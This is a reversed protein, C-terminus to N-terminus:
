KNNDNLIKQVAEIMNNAKSINGVELIDNISEATADITILIDTKFHPRETTAGIANGVKYFHIKKM